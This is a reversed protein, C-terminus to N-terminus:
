GGRCADLAPSGGWPLIDDFALMRQPRVEAMNRFYYLVGYHSGTIISREREGTMNTLLGGMSCYGFQIDHESATVRRASQSPSDVLSKLEADMGEVQKARQELRQEAKEKSLQALLLAAGYAVCAPTDTGLAILM